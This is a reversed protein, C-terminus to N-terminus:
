KSRLLLTMAEKGPEGIRGVRDCENQKITELLKRGDDERDRLKFVVRKGQCLAYGTEVQRLELNDPQLEEGAIGLMVGRPAARHVVYYSLYPQSGGLRRQETFRYYRMASLALRGEHVQDSFNGLVTSGAMLKWEGQHQRLQVQRWDFTVRESDTPPAAQAFPHPRALGSPRANDPSSMRSADTLPPIVPSVLAPPNSSKGSEVRPSDNAKKALRSPFTLLSKPALRQGTASTTSPTDGTANSTLVYMPAQSGVIGVQDFHYKQLIALAHKANDGDQLFNFLVKSSDRLCWQGQQQEVRLSNPDFSMRRVGPASGRPPKGAVLWYEMVPRPAGVIGHQNLRLDHVLRLAQRAEQEGSGFDKLVEVGHTLQWRRNNWRLQVNRPDFAHLNEAFPKPAPETSPAQTISPPLPAPATPKSTPERNQGLALSAIGGTVLLLVIPRM